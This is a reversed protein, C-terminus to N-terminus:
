SLPRAVNWRQTLEPLVLQRVATSAEEGSLSASSFWATRRLRECARGKRKPLLTCKPWLRLKEIIIIKKICLTYTHTQDYAYREPNQLIYTHTRKQKQQQQKTKQQQQKTKQQKPWLCLKATKAYYVHMHANQDCACRETKAYTYSQRNPWLCMKKPKTYKHTHTCKTM